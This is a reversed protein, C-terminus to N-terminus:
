NRFFVPCYRTSSSYKKSFAEDAKRRCRILVLIEDSNVIDVTHDRIWHYVSLMAISTPQEDSSLILFIKICFQRVLSLTLIEKELKEIELSCSM